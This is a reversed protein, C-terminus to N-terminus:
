KKENTKGGWFYEEKYLRDKNYKNMYYGEFLYMIFNVKLYDIDINDMNFKRILYNADNFIVNNM